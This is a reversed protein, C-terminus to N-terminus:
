LDTQRREQIESRIAQMFQTAAPNIEANRLTLLAITNWVELGEIRVRAMAGQRVHEQVVLSSIFNTGYGAMVASITEHLGNFQLGIQPLPLQHAQCLAFLRARTASGEERMIFPERLIEALTATQNALRHGSPVVFWLEDRFLEEVQLQPHELLPGGYLALDAQYGLLQDFAGQANTTSVAFDVDPHRAKFSAVWGPILFNGPLYTAVIRIRGRGGRQLALAQEEIHAELAFLRQVEPLLALGAPTLQLGKSHARYLTLGLEAEFRKLQATVAPQSIGLHEAARTVSGTEALAWFLRLAHLNLSM